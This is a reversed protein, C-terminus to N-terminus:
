QYRRGLIEALLSGPPVRLGLGLDARTSEVLAGQLKEIKDKAARRGESDGQGPEATLVLRSAEGEHAAALDRAAQRVARSALLDLQAVEFRLDHMLQWGKDWHSDVLTPPADASADQKAVSADWWESRADDSLTLCRAVVPREQDRRWQERQGRSVLRASIAVNVLSLGAATFAAVAAIDM